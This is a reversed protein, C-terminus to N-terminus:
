RRRRYTAHARQVHRAFWLNAAFLSAFALALSLLTSIQAIRLGPAAPAEVAAVAQMMADAPEFIELRSAHAASTLWGHSAPTMDVIGSGAVVAFLLLGLLFDRIPRAMRRALKTQNL